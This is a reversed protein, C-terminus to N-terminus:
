LSVCAYLCKYLKSLNCIILFMGDSRVLKLGWNLAEYEVNKMILELIADRGIASMVRSSVSKNLTGMVTDIISENELCFIQFFDTIFSFIFAIFSVLM